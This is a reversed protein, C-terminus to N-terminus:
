CGRCVNRIKANLKSNEEALVDALTRQSPTNSESTAQDPPQSTRSGPQKSHEAVWAPPAKDLCAKRESAKSISQCESAQAIAVNSLTGLLFLLGITRM